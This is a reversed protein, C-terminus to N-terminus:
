RKRDFTTAVESIYEGVKLWARFGPETIAHLLADVARRESDSCRAYRDLLPGAWPPLDASTAARSAAEQLAKLDARTKPGRGSALWDVLVGGADAIVAATFVSPARGDNIYSRIVSEKIGCRRSFSSVSEGGIVDLLRAAFAGSEPSLIPRKGEDQDPRARNELPGYSARSESTKHQDNM